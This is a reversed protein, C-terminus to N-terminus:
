DALDDAIRQIASRKRITVRQSNSVLLGAKEWATLIRSATHLTTGSINAVDKRRLPFEIMTGEATTQGAQHALRLVAHAVRREARQTSLERLREQAEKLRLGV